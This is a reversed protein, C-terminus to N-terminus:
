YGEYITSFDKYFDVNSGHKLYLVYLGLGRLMEGSWFGYFMGKNGTPDAFPSWAGLMPHGSSGPLSVMEARIHKYTKAILRNLYTKTSGASACLVLGALWLGAM